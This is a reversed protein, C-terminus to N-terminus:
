PLEVIKRQTRPTHLRYEKWSVAHSQEDVVRCPCVRVSRNGTDVCKVRLREYLSRYLSKSQIAQSAVSVSLLLTYYLVVVFLLALVFTV